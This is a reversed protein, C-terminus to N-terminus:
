KKIDSLFKRIRVLFQQTSESILEPWSFQILNKGLSSKILRKNNPHRFTAGADDGTSAAINTLKILQNKHLNTGVTSSRTKQGNTLRTHKKLAPIIDEEEIINPPKVEFYFKTILEAEQLQDIFKKPNRMPSIAISCKHYSMTKSSLLLKELQTASNEITSSFDTNNQIACLAKNSDIVVDIHPNHIHEEIKFDTGDFPSTKVIRKRTLQFHYTNEDIEKKQVAFYTRTKLRRVLHEEDLTEKLIKSPGPWTDVLDMQPQFVQVRFLTYNGM